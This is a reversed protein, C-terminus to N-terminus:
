IKYSYVKFPASCMTSHRAAVALADTVASRADWGELSSLASLAGTTIEGGAGIAAYPERFTIISFDEAIEYIGSASAVLVSWSGPDTGLLEKQLFDRLGEPTGVTAKALLNIVRFSGASGFLWRDIKFVKPNASVMKLTGVEDFAGADGGLAVHSSTVAAAIVTM